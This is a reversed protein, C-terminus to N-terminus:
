CCLCFRFCHTHLSSFCFGGFWGLSYGFGLVLLFVPSSHFQLGGARQFWPARRLVSRVMLNCFANLVLRKNLM